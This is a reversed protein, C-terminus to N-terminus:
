CSFCSAMVDTNNWEREEDTMREVRIPSHTYKSCSNQLLLLLLADM